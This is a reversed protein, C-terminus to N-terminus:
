DKETVLKGISDGVVFGSLFCAASGCITTLIPYTDSPNYFLHLGAGFAGVALIILIVERM